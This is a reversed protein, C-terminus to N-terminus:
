VYHNFRVIINMGVVLVTKSERLVFSDTISNGNVQITMTLTPEHAINYFDGTASSDYIGGVPELTVSQSGITVIITHDIVDETSPLTVTVVHTKKPVVYIGEEPGYITLVVIAIVTIVIGIRLKKSRMINPITM